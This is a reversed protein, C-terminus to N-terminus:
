KTKLIKVKFVTTKRSSLCVRGKIRSKENSNAVTIVVTEEAVEAAM